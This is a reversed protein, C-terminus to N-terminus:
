HLPEPPLPIAVLGAVRIDVGPVPMTSLSICSIGVLQGKVEIHSSPWVYVYMHLYVCMCLLMTLFHLRLAIICKETSHLIAVKIVLM